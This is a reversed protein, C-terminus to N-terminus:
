AGGARGMRVAVYMYNFLANPRHRRSEKLPDVLHVATESKFRSCRGGFGEYSLIWPFALYTKQRLFWGPIM